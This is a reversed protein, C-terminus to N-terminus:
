QEDAYLGVREAINRAAEEATQHGDATKNVEELIIEEVKSDTEDVRQIESLLSTFENLMWQKTSPVLYMLDIKTDPDPIGIGACWYPDDDVSEYRLLGDTFAYFVSKKVPITQMAFQRFSQYRDSLTYKLFGWAGNPNESSSPVSLSLCDIVSSGGGEKVPFGSMVVRTGSSIFSKTIDGTSPLEKTDGMYASALRFTYFTRGFLFNSRQYFRQRGFHLDVIDRFGEYNYVQNENTEDIFELSEPLQAAFRVYKTMMERDYLVSRSDSASGLSFVSLDHIFHKRTYSYGFLSVPDDTEFLVSEDLHTVHGVDSERAFKTNLSFLPVLRYLKGDTENVRWVDTFYDEENFSQDNQMLDYLNRFVGKQTLAKWTQLDMGDLCVIDGATGSLLDSTLRLAANEMTTDIAYLDYYERIEIKQEPETENYQSVAYRLYESCSLCALTLGKKEGAMYPTLRLIEGEKEYDKGTVIMLSGSEQETIVQIATYDIGYETFTLLEGVKPDEGLDVAYLSRGNMVLLDHAEGPFCRTIGLIGRTSYKKQTGDLYNLSSLLIEMDTRLAAILEGKENGRVFGGPFGQPIEVKREIQGDQSIQYLVGQEPVRIWLHDTQDAFFSLSEPVTKLELLDNVKGTFCLEGDKRYVYLEIEAGEGSSQFPAAALWMTNRSIEMESVVFDAPIDSLMVSRPKGSGFVQIRHERHTQDESVPNVYAYVEGSRERLLGRSETMAAYAQREVSYIGPYVGEQWAKRQDQITHVELEFSEQAISASSPDASGSLQTQDTETIHNCACLLCIVILISVISYTRRM